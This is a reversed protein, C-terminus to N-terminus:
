AHLVANYSTIVLMYILIIHTHVGTAACTAVMHVFDCMVHSMCLLSLLNNSNHQTYLDQLFEFFKELLWGAAEACLSVRVCSAEGCLSVRVCSAEGCV